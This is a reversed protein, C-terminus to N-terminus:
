PPLKTSTEKCATLLGACCILLCCGGVSLGILVSSLVIGIYIGNCYDTEREGDCGNPQNYVIGCAILTCFSLLLLIGCGGFGASEKNTSSNTNTM